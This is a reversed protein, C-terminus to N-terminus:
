PTCPTQAERAGACQPRRPLRHRGPRVAIIQAGAQAFLRSRAEAVPRPGLHAPSPLLVAYPTTAALTDLLAVLAPAEAGPSPGHETFVAALHLEHRRCYDILVETLVSRRPTDPKALRLYGYVSPGNVPLQETIVDM